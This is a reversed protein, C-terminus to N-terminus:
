KIGRILDSFSYPLYLFDMGQEIGKDLGILAIKFICGSPLVKDAPFDPIKFNCLNNAATTHTYDIQGTVGSKKKLFTEYM